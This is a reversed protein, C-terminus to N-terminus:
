IQNFGLSRALEIWDDAKEESMGGFNFLYSGQNIPRGLAWPGGLPSHPLEKAATVVHQMVSRLKEQPCGILAVKAGALGFRPYCMARLRNSARPLERVNTQLNLALASAAFPEEPTGKLSLGVDAFVLEEVDKGRCSVVELTIHNACTTPHVVARVGSDGFDITLRGDAFAVASAEFHKGAQTIRAFPASGGGTCYDKGSLKDIFRLNRGRRSIEYRLYVNELTCAPQDDGGAQVPRASIGVAALGAGTCVFQRRTLHAM